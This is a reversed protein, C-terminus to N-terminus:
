RGLRYGKGYLRKSLNMRQKKIIKWFVYGREKLTVIFFQNAYVRLDMRRKMRDLIYCHTLDGTFPIPLSYDYEAIRKRSDNRVVIKKM